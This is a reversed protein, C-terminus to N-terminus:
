NIEAWWLIARAFIRRAKSVNRKENKLGSIYGREREREVAELIQPNKINKNKKNM